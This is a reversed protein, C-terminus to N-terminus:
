AVQSLLKFSNTCIFIHFIIYKIQPHSLHSLTILIVSILHPSVKLSFSQRNVVVAVVKILNAQTIQTRQHFTSNINLTSDTAEAKQQTEKM